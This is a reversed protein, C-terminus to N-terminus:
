GGEDGSSPLMAVEGPEEGDIADPFAVVEASGGGDDPDLVEDHEHLLAADPIDKGGRKWLSEAKELAAQWSLEPTLKQLHAAMPYVFRAWPTVTAEEGQPPRVARTKLLVHNPTVELSDVEELCCARPEKAMIVPLGVGIVYDLEL